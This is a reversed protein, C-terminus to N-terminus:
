RPAQRKKLRQPWWHFLTTSRVLHRRTQLTVCRAAQADELEEISAFRRNVLVTNTLPWLHDAPQLEPSYAPLFLLHLHDPVRLRQTSRWGARDLVLVIQKKAGAGIQRAFAALEAEFLPINVSTALHFFTRGSSPYVFGVLYRWEYRLQVPALPRHGNVCWVNQLIPKLGIRQEDVAWLEVTSHPFATAVERLLPHLRAKFTTQAALDAQVHRPRPKLVRAGLRRRARWAVQRSVRRGLQTSLWAAVTRGCWRDGTPHPQALAARLAAHREETLLPQRARGHRGQRRQDRVSDPGAQNYRRAIQGIWYASYGTVRAIATATLGRALLWLFQWRSREVSDHTQRYREHLERDTLSPHLHIRKPM